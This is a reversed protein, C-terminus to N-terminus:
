NGGLVYRCARGILWAAVAPVGIVAYPIWWDAGRQPLDAWPVFLVGYALVAVAIGCGLWYLVDGLRVLM